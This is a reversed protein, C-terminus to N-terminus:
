SDKFRSPPPLSCPPLPPLANLLPPFPLLSVYRMGGEFAVEAARLLMTVYVALRVWVSVAGVPSLLDFTHNLYVVLLVLLFIYSNFLLTLTSEATPILTTLFTHKRLNTLPRTLATSTSTSEDPSPPPSLPNKMKNTTTTNNSPM